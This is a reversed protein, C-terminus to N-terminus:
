WAFETRVSHFGERCAVGGGGGGGSRESHPQARLYSRRDKRARATRNASSVASARLMVPLFEREVRRASLASGEEERERQKEREAGAERERSKSAEHKRGRDGEGREERGSKWRRRVESGREEDEWGEEEGEEEREEREEREEQEERM